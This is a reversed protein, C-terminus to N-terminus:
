ARWPWPVSLLFTLCENCSRAFSSNWCAPGGVWQVYWSRREQRQQWLARRGVGHSATRCARAVGGLNQPPPVVPQQELGRRGVVLAEWCGSPLAVSRPCSGAAAWNGPRRGSASSRSREVLPMTLLDSTIFVEPPLLFIGKPKTFSSWWCCSDGLHLVSTSVWAGCGQQAYTSFVKSLQDCNHCRHLSINRQFSHREHELVNRAGSLYCLAIKLPLPLM